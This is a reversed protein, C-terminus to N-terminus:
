AGNRSREKWLAKVEGLASKAEWKRPSLTGDEPDEFKFDVSVPVPGGREWHLAEPWPQGGLERFRFVFIEPERELAATTEIRLEDTDSISTRAQALAGTPPCPVRGLFLSTAWRLPIGGWSDSGSEAQGKPRTIIYKTGDVRIIAQSAGLLNTVDLTLSDPEKAVVLAPFQGSADKSKAKIWVKGAVQKTTAGPSCAATVLLKPDTYRRPRAGSCGALLGLGLLLLVRSTLNM